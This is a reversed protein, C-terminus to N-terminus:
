GLTECEGVILVIGVVDVGLLEGVSSYTQSSSADQCQNFFPFCYGQEHTAPFGCLRQLFVPASPNVPNSPHGAVHPTQVELGVSLGVGLGDAVGDLTGVEAGVTPGVKDGVFAGDLAGEIVGEIAGVFPGLIAGDELICGVVDSSGVAASVSAGELTGDIDGLM